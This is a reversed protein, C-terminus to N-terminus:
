FNTRNVQKTSKGLDFSIQNKQCVGFTLDNSYLKCIIFNVM